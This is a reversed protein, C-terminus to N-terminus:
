RTSRGAWSTPKCNTNLSYFFTSHSRVMGWNSLEVEPFTEKFIVEFGFHEYLSVNKENQTELFCPLGENQIRGLMPRMLASAFGKGQHRPDVAIPFLHWHPRPLHKKRLKTTHSSVHSMRSVTDMGLHRILNLGGSQLIRVNTMDSKDPPFWAAIGEFNPSTSYVEGYKFAFKLRFRLYESFLKLRNEGEPIFYLNLPDDWFADILVDICKAM